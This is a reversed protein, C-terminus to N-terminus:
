PDERMVHMIVKLPATIKVVNEGGQFLMEFCMAYFTCLMEFCLVNM